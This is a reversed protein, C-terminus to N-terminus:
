ERPNGSCEVAAEPAQTVSIGCEKGHQKAPPENYGDRSDQNETEAGHHQQEDAAVKKRQDVGALDLKVNARGGSGADFGGLPYELRDLVLDAFDNRLFVARQDDVIDSQRRSGVIQGEGVTRRDPDVVADDLHRELFTM